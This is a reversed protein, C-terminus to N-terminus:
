LTLSQGYSMGVTLSVKLIPHQAFIAGANELFLHAPLTLGCVFGRELKWRAPPKADSLLHGIPWLWSDDLSTLLDKSRREKKEREEKAIDGALEIGLRIFESREIQGNEELWDAFILRPLDDRPAEAISRQFARALPAPATLSNGDSM